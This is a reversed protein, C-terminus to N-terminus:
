SFMALNIGKEVFHLRTAEKKWEKSCVAKANDLAKQLEDMMYYVDKICKNTKMKSMTEFHNRTAAFFVNADTIVGKKEAKETVWVHQNFEERMMKKANADTRIIDLLQQTNAQM